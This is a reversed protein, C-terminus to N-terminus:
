RSKLEAIIIAALWIIGVVAAYAALGLFYVLVLALGLAWGFWLPLTVILWPWTIVGALKLGVFLTTLLFPVSAFISCLKKM